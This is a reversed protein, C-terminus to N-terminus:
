NIKQAREKYSWLQASVFVPFQTNLGATLCVGVVTEIRLAYILKCLVGYGQKGESPYGEQMGESPLRGFTCQGRTRM